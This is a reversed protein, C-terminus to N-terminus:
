VTQSIQNILSKLSEGLDQHEPSFGFREGTKNRGDEYDTFSLYIEMAESVFRSKATPDNGKAINEGAALFEKLISSFDRHNAAAKLLGLVRDNQLPIEEDPYADLLQTFVKKLRRHSNNLLSYETIEVVVDTMAAKDLAIMGRKRAKRLVRVARKLLKKEAGKMM